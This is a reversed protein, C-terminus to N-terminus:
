CSSGSRGSRSSAGAAPAPAPACARRQGPAGPPPSPPPPAAPPSPPSTTAMTAERRAPKELPTASRRPEFPRQRGDPRPDRRATRDAQDVRQPQARLGRAGAARASTGAPAGFAVKIATGASPSVIAAAAGPFRMLSVIRRPRSLGQLMLLRRVTTDAISGQGQHGAIPVGNVATIEVAESSASPAANIAEATRASGACPLGAVTPKLGSVSLYELMSLVRKDVRGEQVDQRACSALRVGRDHLVQPELQQKSELLVQGISPSTALFPNEGKASFISTNELAM